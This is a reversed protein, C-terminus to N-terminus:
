FKAVVELLYARNKGGTQEAEKAGKRKKKKADKEKEL